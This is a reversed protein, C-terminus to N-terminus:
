KKVLHFAFGGMEEKLYIFKTKGADDIKRTDEAFSIGKSALYSCARDVDNCGIAIHGNKGLYMTNMVEVINGAFSSATADRKELGFVSAIQSATESASSQNECNIGVHMITFGLMTKVADQCIATIEDWKKGDILDKKVMWTGGCAIIRDYSLYDMMNKTTVGGTPMFKLPLVPAISKLFAVGGSQEAPFFKVVKLGANVAKMMDSANTCGPLIPVNKKICFNVLEDNYGPSVIFKAGASLARECQETNLITGAGVLVDPCCRAIQRIAEEGAATRFTVEAAPLGGKKLATALDVADAANEIAIVPVIGIESIRKLVDM